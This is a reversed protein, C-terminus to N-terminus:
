STGVHNAEVKELGDEVWPFKERILKHAFGGQKFGKLSEMNDSSYFIRSDNIALSIWKRQGTFIESLSM